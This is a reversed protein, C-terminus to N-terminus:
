YYLLFKLGFILLLYFLDFKKNLKSIEFLVTSQILKILGKAIRDLMFYM